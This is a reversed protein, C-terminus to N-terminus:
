ITKNATVQNLVANYEDVTLPIIFDDPNVYKHQHRIEFHLHPATSAGTNGIKGVVSGRYIKEGKKVSIESLHSYLTSFGNTGHDIVLYKGYGRDYGTHTVKGPGSAYVNKGYPATLDIGTHFQWKGHIPSIRYGFDSWNRILDNTHVPYIVPMNQMHENANDIAVMVEYCSQKQIDAKKDLKTLGTLVNKIIVSNKHGSTSAYPNAGGFGANRIKEPINELNAAIRYYKNDRSAVVDLYQNYFEISDQVMKIRNTMRINEQAWKQKVIFGHTVVSMVGFSVGIVASCFLRFLASKRFM